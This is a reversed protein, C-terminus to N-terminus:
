RPAPAPVKILEAIRGLKDANCRATHKWGLTLEVLAGQSPAGKAPEPCPTTLPAPIEREVYVPEPEFWKCGTLLMACFILACRRM